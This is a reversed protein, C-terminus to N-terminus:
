PYTDAPATLWRFGLERELSLVQKSVNSQTTYLREAAETYRISESLVVLTHLKQIEM